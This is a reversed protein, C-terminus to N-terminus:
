PPAARWYASRILFSALLSVDEHIIAAAGLRVQNFIAEATPYSPRSNRRSCPNTSYPSNQNETITSLHSLHRLRDLM